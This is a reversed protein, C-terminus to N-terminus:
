ATGVISCRRCDWVRDCLVVGGGAQLAVCLCGTDVVDDSGRDRVRRIGTACLAVNGALAEAASPVGGVEVQVGAVLEFAVLGRGWFVLGVGVRWHGNWVGQVHALVTHAAVAFEAGARDAGAVGLALAAGLAVNGASLDVLAVECLGGEGEGPFEERIVM